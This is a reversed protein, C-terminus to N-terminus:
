CHSHPIHHSCASTSRGTIEFVGSIIYVQSGPSSIVVRYTPSADPSSFPVKYKMFGTNPEARRIVTINEVGVTPCSSTHMPPLHTRLPLQSPNVLVNCHLCAFM